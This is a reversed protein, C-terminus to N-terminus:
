PPEAGAIPTPPLVPRTSLQEPDSPTEAEATGRVTSLSRPEPIPLTPHTVSTAASAPDPATTGLPRRSTVVLVTQLLWAGYRAARIVVLTESLTPDDTNGAPDTSPSPLAVTTTSSDERPDVHPSSTPATCQPSDPQRAWRTIALLLVALAALVASLRPGPSVLPSVLM